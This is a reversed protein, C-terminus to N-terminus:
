HFGVVLPPTTVSWIGDADKTMDYRLGVSVRVSQAEPAELRFTARHDPCMLPVAGGPRQTDVAQVRNCDTGLVDRM